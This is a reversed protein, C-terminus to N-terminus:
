VANVTLEHGAQLALGQIILRAAGDDLALNRAVGAQDVITMHPEGHQDCWLEAGISVVWDLAANGGRKEGAIGPAKKRAERARRAEETEPPLNDDFAEVATGRYEAILDTREPAHLGVEGMLERLGTEPQMSDFTRAAHDADGGWRLSWAVFAERTGGSGRHAACLEVWDKRNDYPGGPANPLALLCKDAFGPALARTTGQGPTGCDGLQAAAVNSAVGPTANKAPASREKGTLAHVLADFDWVKAPGELPAPRALALTRGRERKSKSPVNISWPLRGVRDLNSVPDSGWAAEVAKTGAKRRDMEAPDTTPEVEFVIQIGEGSHTVFAPNLAMLKELVGDRRASWEELTEAPDDKAAKRRDIDIFVRRHGAVDKEASKRLAPFTDRRPQLGVYLSAADAHQAVYARARECFAPDSLRGAVPRTMNATSNSYAIIEITEDPPYVAKLHAIARTALTPTVLECLTAYGTSAEAAGAWASAAPYAALANAAHRMTATIRDMDAETVLEHALLSRALGGVEKITLDFGLKNRLTDADKRLKRLHSNEQPPPRSITIMM